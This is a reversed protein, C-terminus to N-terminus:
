ALRLYPYIARGAVRVSAGCPSWEAVVAISQPRAGDRVLLRTHGGHLFSVIVWSFVRGTYLGEKRFTGRNLSFADPRRSGSRPM